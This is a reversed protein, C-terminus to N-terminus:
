DSVSFFCKGHTVSVDSCISHFEVPLGELELITGEELTRVGTMNRFPKHKDAITGGRYVISNSTQSVFSIDNNM